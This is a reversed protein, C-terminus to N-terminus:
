VRVLGGPFHRDVGTDGAGDRVRGGTLRDAVGGDAHDGVVPLQGGVRVAPVHRAQLRARVGQFDAGETVVAGGDLVDGDRGVAERLDVHDEGGAWAAGDGPGHGELFGTGPDRT